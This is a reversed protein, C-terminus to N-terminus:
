AEQQLKVIDARYMEFVEKCRSRADRSLHAVACIKKMFSDLSEVAEDTGAGIEDPNEDDIDVVDAEDNHPGTDDSADDGNDEDGSSDPDNLLGCTPRFETLQMCRTSAKSARRLKVDATCLSDIHCLICGHKHKGETHWAGGEKLTYVTTISSGPVKPLAPQHGLYTVISRPTHDKSALVDGLESM